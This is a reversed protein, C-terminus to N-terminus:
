FVQTLTTTHDLNAWEKEITTRSVHTLIYLISYLFKM